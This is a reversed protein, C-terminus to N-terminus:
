WCSSRSAKVAEHVLDLGEAWRIAEV